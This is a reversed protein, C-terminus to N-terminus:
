YCIVMPYPITFAPRCRCCAPHTVCTSTRPQNRDGSEKDGALFGAMEAAMSCLADVLHRVENLYIRVSGPEGQRRLLLYLGDPHAELVLEDRIYITHQM